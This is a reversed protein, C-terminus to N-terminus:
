AAKKFGLRQLKQKHEAVAEVRAGWNRMWATSDYAPDGNFRAAKVILECAEAPYASIWEGRVGLEMEKAARLALDEIHEALRDVWILAHVVLDHWNGIQLTTLRSTPNTTVGIKSVPIDAPGIVYVAQPACILRGDSFKSCLNMAKFNDAVDMCSRVAASIDGSLDLAEVKVKAPAAFRAVRVFTTREVYGAM